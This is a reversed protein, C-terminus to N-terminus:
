GERRKRFIDAVRVSLGPLVDGGDLIGHLRVPKSVRGPCVVTVERVLPDVLWVLPVRAREYSWLRRAVQSFRDQSSFIEVILLPPAELFTGEALGDWVGEDDHVMVDPGRVTDPNRSLIVPTDNVSIDGRGRRTLYEGLLMTANPLEDGHELVPLEAIEGDDLEFDRNSNEPLHTFAHFGEATMLNKATTAM